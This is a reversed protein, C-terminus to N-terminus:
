PSSQNIDLRTAGGHVGANCVAHLFFDSCKRWRRHLNLYDCGRLAFVRDPNTAGDQSGQGCELLHPDGLLFVVLAAGRNDM